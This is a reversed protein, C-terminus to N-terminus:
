SVQLGKLNQDYKNAYSYWIYYNNELRDGFTRIFKALDIQEDSLCSLIEEPTVNFYNEQWANYYLNLPLLGDKDAVWGVGETCIVAIGDKGNVVATPQAKYKSLEEDLVDPHNRRIVEHLLATAKGEDLVSVM